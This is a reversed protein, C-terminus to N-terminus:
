VEGYVHNMLKKGHNGLTTTDFYPINYAVAVVVFFSIKGLGM